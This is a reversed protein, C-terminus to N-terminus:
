ALQQRTNPGVSSGLVKIKTHFWCWTKVPDKPTVPRTPPFAQTVDSFWCCILLLGVHDKRKYHTVPTHSKQERPPLCSTGPFGSTFVPTNQNHQNKPECRSWIRITTSRINENGNQDTLGNPKWKTDTQKYTRWFKPFNNPWKSCPVLRKETVTKTVKEPRLM